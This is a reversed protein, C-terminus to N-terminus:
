QEWTLVALEVESHRTMKRAGKGYRLLATGAQQQQRMRKEIACEGKWRVALAVVVGYWGDVHLWPALPLVAVRGADCRGDVGWERVRTM